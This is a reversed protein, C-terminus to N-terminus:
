FVIHKEKPKYLIELFFRFGFYTNKINKSVFEGFFPIAGFNDNRNAFNTKINVRNKFYHEM